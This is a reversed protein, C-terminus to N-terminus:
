SADSLGPHPCTAEGPRRADQPETATSGLGSSWDVVSQPDHSATSTPTVGYCNANTGSMTGPARHRRGIKPPIATKCFVSRPALTTRRCQAVDHAWRLSFPFHLDRE